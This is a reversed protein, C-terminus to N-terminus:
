AATFTATTFWPTWWTRWASRCEPIITLHLDNGDVAKTSYLM